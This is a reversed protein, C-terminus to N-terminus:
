SDFKGIADLLLKLNVDTALDIDAVPFEFGHFVVEHISKQAILVEKDVSSLSSDRIGVFIMEGPIIKAITSGDRLISLSGKHRQVRGACAQALMDTVQDIFHSQEPTVNELRHTSLYDEAQPTLYRLIGLCANQYEVNEYLALADQVNEYGLWGYRPKMIDSQSTGAEGLFLPRLDEATDFVRKSEDDWTFAVYHCREEPLGILGLGQLTELVTGKLLHRQGKAYDRLHTKYQKFLESPEIIEQTGPSAAALACAFRYKLSLQGNITSNFGATMGGANSVASLPYPRAKAEIFILYPLEDGKVCCAVMPDPNGFDALGVEVLLRVEVVKDIWAPRGGDAWEIASLFKQARKAIDPATAIHAVLANM